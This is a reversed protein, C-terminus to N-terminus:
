FKRGFFFFSWKWPLGGEFALVKKKTGRRILTDFKSPCIQKLKQKGTSFL